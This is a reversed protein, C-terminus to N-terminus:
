KRTNQWEELIEPHSNRVFAIFKYASEFGPHFGLDNRLIENQHKGDLNLFINDLQSKYNDILRQMNAVFRLPSEPSTAEMDILKLPKRM